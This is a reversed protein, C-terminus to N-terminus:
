LRNSHPGYTVFFREYVSVYSLASPPSARTSVSKRTKRMRLTVRIRRRIRCLSRQISIWPRMAQRFVKMQAMTRSFEKRYTAASSLSRWAM